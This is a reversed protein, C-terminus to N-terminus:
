ALSPSLVGTAAVLDPASSMHHDYETVRWGAALLRPVAPHPGPLCATLPAAFMGTAALVAAAPDAGAAVTLHRLTRPGAAGAAVVGRGDRVVVGHGGPADAWFAFDPLRGPSGLRAAADAAEAASVAEGCPGGPVPPGNLYLLPWRPAMGFRIYLPLARPDKSAFTFRAGPEPFAHGLLTRGLGRGQREPAIFLDCLMTADGIRRTACYGAVTGVDDAVWFRGHARLHAVYRPDSGANDANAVAIEAVAGLDGGEVARVRM